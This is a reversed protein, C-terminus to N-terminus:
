ACCFWLDVIWTYPLCTQSMYWLILAECMKWTVTAETNITITKFTSITKLNMKSNEYICNQLAQILLNKFYAQFDVVTKSGQYSWRSGVALALVKPGSWRQWRLLMKRMHNWVSPEPIHPSWVTSAQSIWPEYILARHMHLLTIGMSHGTTM